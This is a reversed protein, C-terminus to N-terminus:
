SSSGSAKSPPAHLPMAVRSLHRRHASVGHRMLSYVWIKAAGNVLFWLLAYGWVMLAYTWGIPEVFWGYVAALTGVIQTAETTVVLRWSPWPRAWVAGVNRTIYITLHGAVLLKLFIV